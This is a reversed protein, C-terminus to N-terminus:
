RTLWNAPPIIKTHIVHVFEFRCTPIHEQVDIRRAWGAGPCLRHCYIFAM